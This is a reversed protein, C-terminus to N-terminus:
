EEKKFDDYNLMLAGCEECYKTTHRGKPEHGCESCYPYYGDFSIKWTGESLKRYGAVQVSHAAWEFDSADYQTGMPSNDAIIKAIEYREAIM